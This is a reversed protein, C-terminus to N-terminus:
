LTAHAAALARVARHITEEDNSAFGLRLHADDADHFDYHQGTMVHVGRALAAARWARASVGPDRLKVWLSLGGSPLKYELMDDAHMSLSAHLAARRTEYVRRMRWVHRQISGDELLDALAAEVGQNGQRDIRARLNALTTILDRPASIYGIRLGPALVKSLTGVYIVNGHTDKSALPLVPRGDYHFENDYDDEIIAVRHTRALELLKMRRAASMVAMTPYQHHPTTYVARLNGKNALAELEDTDIGEADVAVPALTAGCTRFADWAPRYGYREVAIVDGPRVLARGILYLAMQSGRTVLLDDASRTIGRKQELMSTLQARLSVHGMFDPAYGLLKHGRRTVVRRYARALEDAPILSLDPMGGILAIADRPPVPAQRPPAIPTLDFGTSASTSADRSPSAANDTPLSTCVYTGRAPLTEIWGQSELEAYSQLVTNRHVGLQNALTRSGPLKDGPEVRGSTIADTISNAIKVFLPSTDDPALTLQLRWM